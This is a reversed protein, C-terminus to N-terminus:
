RSAQLMKACRDLSDNSSISDLGKGANPLLPLVASKYRLEDGFEAVLVTTPLKCDFALNATFGDVSVYGDAAHYLANDRALSPAHPLFDISQDEPVDWQELM